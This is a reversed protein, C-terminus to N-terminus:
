PQVQGAHRDFLGCIVSLEHFGQALIEIEDDHRRLWGLEELQQLRELEEAFFRVFRAGWKEELYPMRIVGAALIMAMVERRLVDDAELELGSSIPLQGRGLMAQYQSREATNASYGDGVASIAGPGIGMVDPSHVAALGLLSWYLKRDARARLWHDAERVYWGASMPQFGSQHLLDMMRVRDAAATLMVRVRDVRGLLSEFEQTSGRVMVDDALDITITRLGVNRATDVARIPQAFGPRDVSSSGIFFRIGNFGLIKLLRLRDASPVAAGLNACWNALGEQHVHFAEQVAAILQYLQDDSYATLLNGSCVLLQMPRDADLLNGHLRLENQIADVTHLRSDALLKDQIYIALPAPLPDGNSQEVWRRYDAATYETSFVALGPYLGYPQEVACPLRAARRATHAKSPIMM